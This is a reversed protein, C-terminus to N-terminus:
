PKRPNSIYKSYRSQSINTKLSTLYSGRMDVFHKQFQSATKFAFENTRRDNMIGM